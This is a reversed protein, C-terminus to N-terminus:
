TETFNMIWLWVGHHRGEEAVRFDEGHRWRRAALVDVVVVINADLVEADEGEWRGPLSASGSM